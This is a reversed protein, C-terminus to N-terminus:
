IEFGAPMPAGAATVCMAKFLVGMRAPSALRSAADNLAAARAPNARALKETRAWLGLRGLFAGQPVPGWVGANAARAVRALAAFDVHATLDAEGPCALPDAPKGGRLAQLSEGPHSEFAGYDLILAVGGQAALRAALGLMWMRCADSVEIVAGEPAEGDPGEGLVELFRGDAVHREAWGQARRVFQRIPLADLFENALLIVPGPPVEALDDHWCAAPVRLAQEGRLRASTEIFHVRVARAFDPAVRSALRVVDQMLTGRGPGAEVLLIEPPAGMQQWAVCAWAGLVEGFVQAIEPSTTFDAFPNHNAYYRANAQAM